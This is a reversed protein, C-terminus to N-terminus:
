TKDRVNGDDRPPEALLADLEARTHISLKAYIHAMHSKVTNRSVVMREAVQQANLGHSLLILVDHERESLGYRWAVENCRGSFAPAGSAAPCSPDPPTEPAPPVPPTSMVLPAPPVESPRTREVAVPDDPDRATKLADFVPQPEQKGEMLASWGLVLVCALLLAAFVLVGGEFLAGDVGRGEALATGLLRGGVLTALFLTAGVLGPTGDTERPAGFGGRALVYALIACCCATCLLLGNQSIMWAVSTPDYNLFLMPVIFVASLACLGQAVSRWVRVPLLSVLTGVAVFAVLLVGYVITAGEQRVYLVDGVSTHFGFVLGLVVLCAVLPILARPPKSRAARSLAHSGETRPTLSLRGQPLLLLALPVMILVLVTEALADMRSLLGAALSACAMVGMYIRLGRKNAAGYAFAEVFALSRRLAYAASAGSLTWVGLTWFQAIYGQAAAWGVALMLLPPVCGFAVAVWRSPEPGRKAGRVVALLVLLACVLGGFSAVQISGVPLSSYGLSAFKKGMFLIALVWTWLCAAGAFGSVSALSVFQGSAPGGGLSRANADETTCFGM